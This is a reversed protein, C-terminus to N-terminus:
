QKFALEYKAAPRVLHVYKLERQLPAIFNEAIESAHQTSTLTHIRGRTHMIFIRGAAAQLVCAAHNEHM